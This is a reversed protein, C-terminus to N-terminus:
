DSDPRSYDLGSNIIVQSGDSKVITRSRGEFHINHSSSGPERTWHNTHSFYLSQSLGRLWHHVGGTGHRAGGCWRVSSVPWSLGSSLSLLPHSGTHPQTVSAPRVAQRPDIGCDSNQLVSWWWGRRVRLVLWWWGWWSVWWWWWHSQILTCNISPPPQHSCSVTLPQILIKNNSAM